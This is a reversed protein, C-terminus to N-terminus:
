SILIVLLQYQEMRCEAAICETFMSGLPLGIVVMCPLSAFM